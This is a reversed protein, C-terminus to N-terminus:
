KIGKLVQNSWQKIFYNAIYLLLQDLSRCNQMQHLLDLSKIALKEEKWPLWSSSKLKFTTCGDGELRKLFLPFKVILLWEVVPCEFCLYGKKKACIKMEQLWWKFTTMAFVSTTKVIDKCTAGRWGPGKYKTSHTASPGHWGATYDALFM